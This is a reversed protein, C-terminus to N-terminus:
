PLRPNGFVRAFPVVRIDTRKMSLALINADNWKRAHEAIWPEWATAARVGGIKNATIAVGTGTWCMLIGFDANGSAVAQGVQRAFDPWAEATKVDVDAVSQLTALVAEVVENTGDTGFAIRM